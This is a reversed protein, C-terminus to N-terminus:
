SALTARVAALLEDRRFPKPLMHRANLRRLREAIELGAAALRCPVALVRAEAFTIDPDVDIMGAIVLDAPQRAHAQAGDAGDAATDVDYGAAELITRMTHRAPAESEIILIRTM